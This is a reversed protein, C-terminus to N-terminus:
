LVEAPSEGALSQFLPNTKMLQEHTGRAVVRGDDFLFIADCQQLTTLRHAIIIVTINGALNDLAEQIARENESDLASTAEDLVLLTPQRYLARAIAVRQKQGGSMREGRDGLSTNLGDSLGAMFSRLNALELCEKVRADDIGENPIGFAVNARLSADVIFPDQSVFGIQTRWNEAHLPITGIEDLSVTGNTPPLLGALLDIVTSKGAGSPGALGHSKGRQFKLSVDKLAMKDAEPYRYFVNNFNVCQWSISAGDRDQAEVTDASHGLAPGAKRFELIALISPAAAQIGSAESVLRTTGPIVRSTVLVLLAMQSSIEGGSGGGHWLLWVILVLAIQGLVMLIVPPLAQVFHLINRNRGDERFANSYLHTFCNETSSLKIEKTGSFIQQAFKTVRAGYRRRKNNLELLPANVFYLLLAAIGGVVLFGIIGALPFCLLLFGINILLLFIYGAAFLPKLIGYDGWMIIDWSIHHATTAANQRMHWEYPAALTRSMMDRSMRNQCSVVFRRVRDQMIFQGVKGLIILLIAGVALWTIFQSLAPGGMAQHVWRMGEHTKLLEPEVVVGVLPMIGVLAISDLFHSLMLLAAIGIARRKESATLLGFAAPVLQRWDKIEVSNPM